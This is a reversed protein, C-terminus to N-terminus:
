RPSVGKRAGAASRAWEVQLALGEDLAVRPVFGLLDRARSTDASTHRVDGFQQPQYEALAKRGLLSQILGLADGLSSQTGGGINFAKGQIGDVEAATRTASV